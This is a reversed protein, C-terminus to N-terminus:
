FREDLNVGDGFEITREGGAGADDADVIAVQLSQVQAHFSREFEDLANGVGADGHAFGAQSGVVVEGSEAVGAEVRKEDALTEHERWIGRRGQSCEEAPGRQRDLRAMIRTLIQPMVLQGSALAAQSAPASM